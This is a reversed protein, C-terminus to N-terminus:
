GRWHASIEKLKEITNHEPASEFLSYHEALLQDPFDWWKLELLSEIMQDDFRYKVIRAPVGAVIAYPPVDKTVVANAGIVAGDGVTVGRLLTVNAGIWVDSGIICPQRFRDYSAENDPRIDDVSSYLFSHNTLRTYDHEAPGITVGWSISTFKGIKTHMIVTDQGTYSHEGMETHYIHCFRGVRSYNKLKSHDIKAGDAAIAKYGIHSNRIWAQKYIRAEDEIKSSHIRSQSDFFCHNGTDSDRIEPALGLEITKLKM